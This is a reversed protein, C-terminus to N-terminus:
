NQFVSYKKVFSQVPCILNFKNSLKRKPRLHEPRSNHRRPLTRLASQRGVPQQARKGWTMALWHYPLVFADLISLPYKELLEGYAGPDSNVRLPCRRELKKFIWRLSIANIAVDM